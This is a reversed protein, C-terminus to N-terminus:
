PKPNELLSMSRLRRLESRLFIAGMYGLTRGLGLNMIHQDFVLPYTEGVRKRDLSGKSIHWNANCFVAFNNKERLTALCTALRQVSRFNMSFFPVAFDNGLSALSYFRRFLERQGLSTQATPTAGDVGLM